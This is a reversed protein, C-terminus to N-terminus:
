RILVAYGKKFRKAGKYTVGEAMWVFTAPDQPKGGYNGDWGKGIETTSFMLTGWRNYVRFYNLEKMGLLIPRLVDNNGDNNPSFATPVYMDEKLRYLKVDITDTGKCGAISTATVIYQINDKPLCVPADILPNNLWTAPSWQYSSAGTAHLFLPEGEVVSTDRPGADAKIKPYVKVWVTDKAPKPCGLTDRVTVIYQISSTPQICLPNPILRDNLFLHVSSRQFDLAYLHTPGQM